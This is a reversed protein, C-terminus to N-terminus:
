NWACVFLKAVISIKTYPDSQNELSKFLFVTSCLCIEIRLGAVQKDFLNFGIIKLYREM